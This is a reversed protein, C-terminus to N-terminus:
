PAVNLIGALKPFEVTALPSSFILRCGLGLSPCYWLISWSGYLQLPIVPHSSQVTDNFRGVHIQGLEPLCYFVPPGPTSQDM